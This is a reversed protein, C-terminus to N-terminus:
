ESSHFAGRGGGRLTKKEEKIKEFERICMCSMYLILLVEKM